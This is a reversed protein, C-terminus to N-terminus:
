SLKMKEVVKRLRELEEVVPDRDGESGAYPRLDIDNTEVYVHNGFRYRATIRFQLPVKTQDADPSFIVFGQALAFLLKGGPALAQIPDVFAPLLRLNHDAVSSRGFQFFDRDISLELNESACRGMNEIRLYLVTTHPRVYTSVVIYPRLMAESQARMEQVTAESAKAMKYTLYAYVATILVLIATLYDSIAM